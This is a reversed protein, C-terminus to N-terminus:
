FPRGYHFTRMAVFQNFADADAADWLRKPGNVQEPGLFQRKMLNQDNHLRNGAPVAPASYHGTPDRKNSLAHGVEHTAAYPGTAQITFAAGRRSDAPFRADTFTEGGNGTALGGVFFLRITDALAPHATGITTENALSVNAPNVGPPPDILVISQGGVTVVDTAPTGPAVVTELRIGIRAYTETMVRLDTTRIASGAGTPIVGAGGTAVRLVFVQIPLRRREEPNRRFVPVEAVVTRGGPVGYEARVTGDIRAERTRHNTEGRARVLGSDPVGAPLGSHTRQDRDIVDSVLMLARSQFVTAGAGTAPLTVTPNAPVDVNARAADLTRWGVEVRDARSPDRVRLHFGRSDAGVFNDAEAADNFLTGDARFAHDWLGMRAFTATAPVPAAATVQETFELQVVTIAVRDAQAQGGALGLQFGTDRATNSRAAGQAFLRLGGPPISATAVVRPLALPAQGAAAVEDTFLEVGRDAPTIRAIALDGRFGGPVPPRVIVMARQQLNDTGQLGLFAGPTIKNAQSLPPPDGAVPRVACIDLTLEVSTMKATAPPGIPSAGGTLTLTLVVDNPAASPAAAEAFLQVSAMLQQGTFLDDTGNFQIETGGTAATFLKIAARNSSTLRGTGTFARDVRITVAVRAPNTHPKRVLLVPAATTIAPTITPAPPTANPGIPTLVINISGGGAAVRACVVNGKAVSVSPPALRAAFQERVEITVIGVTKEQPFSFQGEADARAVVGDGRDPASEREGALYEGDPAILVFRINPAPSGDEFTFSGSIRATAPDAPVICWQGPTASECARTAFCCRAGGTAPGLCWTTGGAGAAPLDFTAPRPPECPLRDTRVFLLEVRRYPRFADGRTPQPLPLPAEEGCGIWKLQGGNCGNKANPLLRDETLTMTAADVALYDAILADWVADNVTTGAPLGKATRFTSVGGDTQDGHLGDVNGAYFGLDQLMYQYQHAGWTDRVTPLPGPAARRLEGWEARAAAADRGATLFAFVSRARRESLSQNYADSGTKDTHGVIVLKQDTNDAAHRMVDRLVGRMCPEVFSKDFRFHVVFATAIVAGRRLVIQVRQTEGSRLTATAAGSMPEPAVVVARATYDGPALDQKRWVDDITTREAPTATVTTGDAQTGEVTVTVTSFDFNPEGEVTVQIELVATGVPPPEPPQPPPPPPPVTRPQPAPTFERLAFAYEFRQPRGALERVGMEEILMQDLRTATAIDAAFPVPQGARFQDRLAKIHEQVGDGTAVGSLTVGSGRRGLPQDFDGELAPVEHVAFVGDEDVEIQQAQQLELTGLMPRIPAM